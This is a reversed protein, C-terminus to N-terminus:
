LGVGEASKWFYVRWLSGCAVFCSGPRGAGLEACLSELWFICAWHLAPVLLVSCVGRWEQGLGQCLMLADCWLLYTLVLCLGQQVLFAEPCLPQMGAQGNWVRMEKSLCFFFFFNLVESKIDMMLRLLLVLIYLDTIRNSTNRQKKFGVSCCIEPASDRIAWHHISKKCKVRIWQCVDCCVWSQSFLNM